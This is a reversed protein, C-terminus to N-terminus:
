GALRERAARLEPPERLAPVLLAAGAVGGRLVQLATTAAPSALPPRRLGYM